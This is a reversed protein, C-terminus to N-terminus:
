TFSSFTQMSLITKAFLNTKNTSAEILFQYGQNFLASDFDAHELKQYTALIANPILAVVIATATGALVKNTFTKFTERTETM